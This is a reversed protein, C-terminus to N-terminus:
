IPCKRIEKQDKDTASMISNNNDSDPQKGPQPPPPLNNGDEKEENTTNSQHPFLIEADPHDNNEDTEDMSTVTKVVPLAPDTAPTPVHSSPVKTAM